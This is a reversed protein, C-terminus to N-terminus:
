EHSESRKNSRPQNQDNTVVDVGWAQLTKSLAIRVIREAEHIDQAETGANPGQKELPLGGVRVRNAEDVTIITAGHHVSIRLPVGSARLDLRTLRNATLWSIGNMRAGSVSVGGSPADRSVQIELVGAALEPTALKDNTDFTRQQDLNTVTQKGVATEISQTGLKVRALYTAFEASTADAQSRKAGAKAGTRIGDAMSKIIEIGTEPNSKIVEGGLETLDDHAQQKLNNHKSRQASFFAIEKDQSPADEEPSSQEDADESQGTFKSAANNLIRTVTAAIGDSTFKELARAQSAQSSEATLTPSPVIPGEAADRARRDAYQSQMDASKAARAAADANVLVRAVRDSVFRSVLAALQATGVIIAFDALVEWVSKPAPPPKFKAAEHSVDAIGQAQEDMLLTHAGDLIGRATATDETAVRDPAPAIRAEQAKSKPASERGGGAPAADVTRARATVLATRHEIHGDDWRVTMHVTAHHIGPSEPKFTFRLPGAQKGLDYRPDQWSASISTAAGLGGDVVVLGTAPLEHLNRPAHIAIEHESGVVSEGLDMPWLTDLRGEPAPKCVEPEPVQFVSAPDKRPERGGENSM